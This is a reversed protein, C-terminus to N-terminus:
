SPEKRMRGGGHVEVGDPGFHVITDAYAAASERHTIALVTTSPGLAAVSDLIRGETEPDLASTAEDLVLLSPRRILARALALRQREGGSLGHGGDGIEGDLAGPMRRIRDAVQADELARWLDEDTANPDALLLNDRITGHFLFTYQPVYATARRWAGVTSKDVVTGDIAVQGVEPEVLGMVVDALTTKGSGTSGTVLTLSGAEIGLEINDLVWPDEAGYRFRVGDLSLRELLAITRHEGDIEQERAAEARRVLDTVSEFAPSTHAIQQATQLLSITSPILRSFLYILVILSAPSLSDGAPGEIAVWSLAALVLASGVGLLASVAAQTRRFAVDSAITEDLHDGFRAIAREEAGFSKAERMGELHDFTIAGAGRQAVLLRSGHARSRRVLPGGVVAVVLAIGLLPLAVTPAVILTVVAYAVLMILMNATRLLQFVTNSVAGIETQLAHQTDSTRLRAVFPWSARSIAGFLRLRLDATYRVRLRNSVDASLFSVAERLAVLAVFVGLLVPLSEPLGLTEFFFRAPAALAGAEDGGVGVVTLLPVLLVLGIGALVAQLVQLVAYAVALVPRSRVFDGLLRWAVRLGSM